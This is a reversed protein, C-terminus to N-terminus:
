AKKLINIQGAHYLNHHITGHIMQKFTFNAEPVTRALDGATWSGLEDALKNVAEKLRNRSQAWEEETEGIEPWDNGDHNLNTVDKVSKKVEELWYTIHNSLEWITHRNMLYRTKANELSIGDLTMVLNRGHWSDGNLTTRLQEVLFEAESM